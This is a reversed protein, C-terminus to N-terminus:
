GKLAKIAEALKVIAPDTSAQLSSIQEDRSRVQQWLYEYQNKGDDYFFDQMPKGVWQKLEAPTAKRQWGSLYLNHVTGEDMNKEKIVSVPDVFGRYGNQLDPNAPRTGWHCHPGTTFGTNGSYAVIDGQKVEQGVSVVRKSNHLLWHEYEGLLVVTEGDVPNGTYQDQVNNGSIIVIADEPARVPTGIAVGSDCGNHGKMGFQAYTAPDAGFAQTQTWNDLPYIM